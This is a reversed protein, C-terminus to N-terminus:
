NTLDFSKEISSAGPEIDMEMKSELNFKAPLYQEQAVGDANAADAASRARLNAPTRFAQIEVRLKGVPVGKTGATAYNGDKIRASWVPGSTPVFRINGNPIPKGDLTVKGHVEARPIGQNCGTSSLLMVLFVLPSCYSYSHLMHCSTVM